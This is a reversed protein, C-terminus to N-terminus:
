AGLPQLTVDTVHDGIRLDEWRVPRDGAMIGVLAIRSVQCTGSRGVFACAAPQISSINRFRVDSISATQRGGVARWCLEPPPAYLDILRAERWTGDLHHVHCDEFTVDRVHSEDLADIGCLRNTRVAEVRRFTIREMVTAWTETGVKCTTSNNIALLDSVLVDSVRESTPETGRTSSKVAVADDGTHMLCHDITVRSSGDPNIGDTNICNILPRNNLVKIRRAVVDTCNRLITNWHCADSFVPGDLVVGRCGVLRILERYYAGLDLVARNGDIHGHGTISIGNADRANIFGGRAPDYGMITPDGMHQADNSAKLVAGSSLHVRCNSGLFLSGSRYIGPPFVLTHTAHDASVRDLAAQIASTRVMAPDPRLGLDAAIVVGQGAPEEQLPDFALLLYGIGDNAFVLHPNDRVTFRWAKKEQTVTIGLRRPHLSWQKVYRNIRIVVEHEGPPLSAHVFYIPVDFHGYRLVRLPRGDVEAIAQDATALYGAPLAANHDIIADAPAIRPPTPAASTVTASM